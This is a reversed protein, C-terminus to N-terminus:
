DGYPWRLMGGGGGSERNRKGREKRKEGNATLKDSGNSRRTTTSIGCKNFMSSSLNDVVLHSLASTEAGSLPCHIGRLGDFTM